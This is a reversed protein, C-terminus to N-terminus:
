HSASSAQNISKALDAYGAWSQSLGKVGDGIQQAPNGLAAAPPKPIRDLISKAQDSGQKAADRLHWVAENQNIPSNKIDTALKGLTVKAEIEGHVAAKKLWDATELSVKESEKEMNLLLHGLNSEAQPLGQLAAKEYYSVAKEMDKEVGVGKEYLMGLLTQAKPDGKDALAKLHKHAKKYNRDKLHKVAKKYSATTSKSHHHKNSLGNNSTDTSSNSASCGTLVSVFLLLALLNLLNLNMEELM